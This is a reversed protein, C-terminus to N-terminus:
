YDGVTALKPKEETGINLKKTKLPRLHVGETPPEKNVNREGEKEEFYLHRLDELGDDEPDGDIRQCVLERVAEPRAPLTCGDTQPDRFFLVVRIAHLAQSELDTDEMFSFCRAFKRAVETWSSTGRKREEELYWAHPITDLSHVFRHAWLEKPYGISRWQEECTRLHDQPNSTGSYRQKSRPGEDEKSRARLADAVSSWQSLTNRHNKWWRAATSQLAVDLLPLRCGEPVMDEVKAIFTNVAQM